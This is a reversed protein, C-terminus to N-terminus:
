QVDVSTSVFNSVGASNTINFQISIHDGPSVTLPVKYAYTTHVTSQSTYTFRDIEGNSGLNISQDISLVGLNNEPSLMTITFKVVDGKAATTKDQTVTIRPRSALVSIKASKTAVNGKVDTITFTLVSQQGASASDPIRYNLVEDDAVNHAVPSSDMLIRKPDSQYQEEIHIKQLGYPIASTYNIKVLDGAIGSASGPTLVISPGGLTNNNQNTTTNNNKTCGTIALGAIIVMLLYFHLYSFIKM